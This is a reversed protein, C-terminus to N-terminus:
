RRWLRPQHNILWEVDAQVSVSLALSRNVLTNYYRMEVQWHRHLRQTVSQFAYLFTDDSFVRGYQTVREAELLLSGFLLSHGGEFSAGPYLSKGRLRAPAFRSSVDELVTAGTLRYYARKM